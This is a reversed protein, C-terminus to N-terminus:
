FRDDGEVLPVQMMVEDPYFFASGNMKCAAVSLGAPTVRGPRRCTCNLLLPSSWTLQFYMHLSAFM